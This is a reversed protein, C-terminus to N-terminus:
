LLRDGESTAGTFVPGLAGAEAGEGAAEPDGAGAGLLRADEGGAVDADGGAAADVTPAGLLRADEEAGDGDGGAPALEVESGPAEPDAEAPVPAALKGIVTPTAVSPKQRTDPVLLTVYLATALGWIVSMREAAHLSMRDAIVGVILPAILDALSTTTRFIGLFTGRSEPPALDAGITICVGSGLGNGFGAIVAFLVQFGVSHSLTLVGIGVSIITMSLGGTKTRGITDLLKGAAPFFCADVGFSLGAIYGVTEQTLNADKGALAFYLKRGERLASFGLTFVGIRALTKGHVRLIEMTGAPAAKTGKANKSGGAQDSTAVNPMFRLILLGGLGSILLQVGYVCRTSFRHALAGGIMPGVFFSIRNVGGLASSVRGRYDQPVWAGIFAQRALQTMTQAVGLLVAGVGLTAKSSVMFILASLVSIGVSVLLVDRPSLHGLLWGTPVNATFTGIGMLAVYGAADQYGVNFREMVELPLVTVLLARNFQMAAAPGYLSPVLDRVCTFETAHHRDWGMPL